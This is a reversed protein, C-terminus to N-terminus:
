ALLAQALLLACLGSFVGAAFHRGSLFFVCIGFAFAGLRIYMPCAALAGMPFMIMRGILGAVLANSVSKVWKLGESDANIRTGVYLGAWRWVENLLAVVLLIAVFSGLGGQQIIQSLEM